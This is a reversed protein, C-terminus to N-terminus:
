SAARQRSHVHCILNERGAAHQAELAVDPTLESPSDCVYDVVALGAVLQARARATLIPEAPNAILVLLPKGDTKLKALEEAYSAVMPDFYGSVVTAGERAVRAAHAPDIIKTRTDIKTRPDM